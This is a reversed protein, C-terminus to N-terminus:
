FPCDAADLEVTPAAAGLARSRARRVLGRAWRTLNDSVCTNAPGRADYLRWATDGGVLAVTAREEGDIAWAYFQGRRALEHHQQLTGLCHHMAEGEAVLAAGNTLPTAWTAEDVNLAVPPPPFPGTQALRTRRARSVLADHHARLDDHSSLRPHRRVRLQAELEMTDILTRVFNHGDWRSNRERLDTWLGPSCRSLWEPQCAMAIAANVRDLHALVKATEPHRLGTRLAALVEVDAHELTLKRLVRASLPRDPFGLRALATRPGRRLWRRAFAVRRRAPDGVLRRAASLAYVLARHDSCCLEHAEPSAVLFRLLPWDRSPYRHLALEDQVERPIQDLFRAFNARRRTEYPRPPPRDEPAFSKREAGEAIAQQARVHRILHGVHIDPCAAGKWRADDRHKVWAAAPRPRLATVQWESFELYLLGKASKKLATGRNASRWAPQSSGM